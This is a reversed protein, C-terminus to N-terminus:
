GVHKKTLTDYSYRRQTKKDVHITVTDKEEWRTEETDRNYYYTKGTVPDQHKSWESEALSAMAVTFNAIPARSHNTTTDGCDTNLKPLSREPSGAPPPAGLLIINKQTM